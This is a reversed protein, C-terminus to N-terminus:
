VGKRELRDGQRCVLENSCYRCAERDRDPAVPYTGTQFYQKFGELIERLETESIVQRPSIDKAKSLSYYMIKDVREGPYLSVGGVIKYLPLQLDIKAKGNQDKIGKPITGGSKYDIFVLSEERRDIRDIYGRVKLDEIKGKFERELALIEVSEPLFDPQLMVRKLTASLEQRQYEWARFQTVDINKEDAIYKEAQQFWEMLRDNDVLNITTDQQYAGLAIELVKHYLSGKLAPDLESDAEEIEGLKLLKNAFWKFPCQGLQTLQSASFWHTEYDFPIGVVGDYENPPGSSERQQEVQWAHIAKILVDDTGLLDGHSRRLYVQRAIEPSPIIPLSTPEPILGLRQFYSSPESQEYSGHRPFTKAYSFVFSKKPTQLLSYFDFTEKQASELASTLHIGQSELQQREYFDLVADNVIPKPLNGERGDIVFVYDYQAGVISRLNHLEIGERGPGAVTQLLNLHTLMEERFQSWTIAATGLEPLEQLGESWNKYALSEKAWRRAQQRVQFLDFISQFYTLWDHRLAETPLQIPAIDINQEALIVSRWSDFNNPRSQQFQAWLNKGLGRSLPHQFFRATLEFSWHQDLVELLLKVWAGVRTEAIPITYPLRLAIGYEWAIDMLRDGWETDNAAVIVMDRSLVGQHLLQKVQALVGRAEANQNAYVQAMVQPKQEPEPTIGSAGLFSRSLWRSPPAVTTKNNNLYRETWGNRKFRQRLTNQPAFLPSEGALLYFISNEDAIAEIFAVEDPCPNFYGYIMLSKQQSQQEIAQWFLEGQDIWGGSRLFKQYAQAVAFVEQARKSSNSGLCLDPQSRFIVQVTPQWTRAMGEPDQLELTQRLAEKLYDHVVLPPAIKIQRINLIDQALQQLSFATVGLTQAANRNPTIMQWGGDDSLDQSLEWAADLLPEIRSSVYLTPM